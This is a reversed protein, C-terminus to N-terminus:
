NSVLKCCRICILFLCVLPYYKEYMSNQKMILDIFYIKKLNIKKYFLDIEVSQGKKAKKRTSNSNDIITLIYLCSRSQKWIKKSIRMKTLLKCQNRIQFTVIELFINSIRSDFMSWIRDHYFLSIM